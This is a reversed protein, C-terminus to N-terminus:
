CECWEVKVGCEKCLKHACSGAECKHAGTFKCGCSHCTILESM